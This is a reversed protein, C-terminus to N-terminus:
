APQTASRRKIMVFLFVAALAFYLLNWAAYSALGAVTLVWELYFSTYLAGAISVIGNAVFLLRTAKEIGTGSFFGSALLTGLGLFGYGWMEIAWFLSSPNTVAFLNVVPELTATYNRVLAPVYTAETFYNFAILGCAISTFILALLTHLGKNSLTYICTIMLVSGILLLFGFYFTASQIPHYNEIYTQAGSWAPQPSISSVALFALPGSFLTGAMTMIAATIGLRYSRSVKSSNEM